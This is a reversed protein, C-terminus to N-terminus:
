FSRNIILLVFNWFITTKLFLCFIDLFHFTLNWMVLLLVEFYQCYDFNLSRSWITNEMVLVMLERKEEGKKVKINLHVWVKMFTLNFVWTIRLQPPHNLSIIATFFIISCFFIKINIMKFLFYFLKLKFSILM